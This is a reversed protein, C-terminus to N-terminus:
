VYELPTSERNTTSRTTGMRPEADQENMDQDGWPVNQQTPNHRQNQQHRGNTQTNNIYTDLTTQAPKTPWGNDAAGENAGTQNEGYRNQPRNYIGHPRGRRRVAQWDDMFENQNRRNEPHANWGTNQQQQHHQHYDSTTDPENLLRWMRPVVTPFFKYKNEPIRAQTKEKEAKFTPCNRDAAGHGKAGTDTCNTCRFSATDTITCQTTRHEGGCRACTDTNAKCDPVYHGFKQCKLCRRPETLMKRVNVHKGEVFMGTEIAMNAGNRENFGFVVHAVRQNSARLHTPKIYKSHGIVNTGLASDEEVKAHAYSSGADFTTPVFEALVYYLKNRINSTGGYNAIFANQVDTQKLWIAADRNNLQYLINGNCLKRAGVFTTEPPKDAAEIGMLDLATNAKAVLDKETLSELVNDTAKPDKQILIQKDTIEGRTIVSAHTPPIQQQTISAYTTAQHTHHPTTAVNVNEATIDTLDQAAQAIQETSEQFGEKFEDMKGTIEKAAGTVHEVADRMTEIDTTFSEMYEQLQNKITATIETALQQSGAEALLLAVARIGDTLTKSMRLGAAAHGFQLLVHSLTQLDTPKGPILYEKATLFAIAQEKTRVDTNM